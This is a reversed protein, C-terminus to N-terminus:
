SKEKPPLNPFVRMAADAVAEWMKETQHGSGTSRLTYRNVRRWRQVASPHPMESITVVEGTKTSETTTRSTLKRTEETNTVNLGTTAGLTVGQVPASVSAGLNFTVGVTKKFEEAVELKMGREVEVTLTRRTNPPFQTFSGDASSDWYSEWQLHYYPNDRVQTLRDDYKPDKVLAGPVIQEAIFAPDTTEPMAAMEASELKPPPPMKGIPCWQERPVLFATPREKESGEVVELSFKQSDKGAPPQLAIFGGATGDVDCDWVWGAPGPPDLVQIYFWGNGASILKFCQSGNKDPSGDIGGFPKLVRIWSAAGVGVIKRPGTPLHATQIVYRVTGDREVESPYILWQANTDGRNELRWRRLREDGSVYLYTDKPQGAPVGDTGIFDFKAGCKIRYLLTTDTSPREVTM